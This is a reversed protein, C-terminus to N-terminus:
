QCKKAAYLSTTTAIANQVIQQPAVGASVDAIAGAIVTQGCGVQADLFSQFSAPNSIGTFFELEERLAQRQLPSSTKLASLRFSTAQDIKWFDICAQVAAVSTPAFTPDVQQNFVASMKALFPVANSNSLNSVLPLASVNVNYQFALHADIATMLHWLSVYRIDQSCPGVNNACLIGKSSAPNRAGWFGVVDGLTHGLFGISFALANTWPSSTAQSVMFAGFAPSHLYSLNECLYGNATNGSLNFKGFALADPLDTSALLNFWQDTPNV